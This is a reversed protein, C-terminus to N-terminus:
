NAPLRRYDRCGQGKLRRGSEDPRRNQTGTDFSAPQYVSTRVNPRSTRSAIAASLSAM